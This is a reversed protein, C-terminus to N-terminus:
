EYIPIPDTAALYVSGDTNLIDYNVWIFSEASGGFSKGADLTGWMYSFREEEWDKGGPNMLWM